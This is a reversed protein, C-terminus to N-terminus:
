RLCHNLTGKACRQNIPTSAANFLSQGYQPAVDGLSARANAPMRANGGVSAVGLGGNSSAPLVAPPANSNVVTPTTILGGTAIQSVGTTSIVGASVLPDTAPCSALQNATLEASSSVNCLSPNTACSTSTLSQLQLCSPCSANSDSSCFAVQNARLCYATNMGEGVIDFQTEAAPSAATFYSNGCVQGATYPFPCASYFVPAQYGLNCYRASFQQCVPSSIMTTMNSMCATAVQQNCVSWRYAYTAGCNPKGSADFVGDPSAYGNVAVQQQQQQQQNNKNMMMMAAMMAMPLMSTLGGMGSGGTSPSTRTPTSTAPSSSSQQASSPSANASKDAGSAGSGSGANNNTNNNNNANANQGTDGGSAKNMIDNPNDSVATDGGGSAINKQANTQEGADQKLDAIQDELAQIKSKIPDECYTKRDM